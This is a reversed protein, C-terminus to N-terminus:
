WAASVVLVDGPLDAVLCPDSVDSSTLVSM